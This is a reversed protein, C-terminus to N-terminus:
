SVPELHMWTFILPDAGQSILHHDEGPEFVVVDGAQFRGAEAGEIEIAGSGQVIVFVEPVTHVHRGPEDHTRLGPEAYVRFGGNRVVHGPLVSTFRPGRHHARLDALSLKRM